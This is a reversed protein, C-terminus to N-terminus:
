SWKRVNRWQIAAAVPTGVVNLCM